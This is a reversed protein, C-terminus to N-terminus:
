RLRPNIERGLLHPDEKPDSQLARDILRPHREGPEVQLRLLYPGLFEGHGSTGENRRQIPQPLQTEQDRNLGALLGSIVLLRTDSYRQLDHFTNCLAVGRGELQQM